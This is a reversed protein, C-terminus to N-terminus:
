CALAPSHALYPRRLQRGRENVLKEGGGARRTGRLRFSHHGGLCAPQSRAPNRLGEPSGGVGPFSSSGRDRGSETRPALECVKSTGKTPAAPCNGTPADCHGNGVDTRTQGTQDQSTPAQEAPPSPPLFDGLRGACNACTTQPLWRNGLAPKTASVATTPGLPQTVCPRAGPRTQSAYANHCESCYGRIQRGPVQLRTCDIRVAIDSRCCYQGLAM